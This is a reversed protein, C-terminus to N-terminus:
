MGLDEEQDAIDCDDNEITTIDLNKAAIREEQSVAANDLKQLKPLMKIIYLRYNKHSTLPNDWLWLVRLNPLDCLHQIERM